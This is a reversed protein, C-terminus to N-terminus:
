VSKQGSYKPRVVWMLVIGHIAGVIGGAAAITLLMTVIIQFIAAGETVTGAVLFVLPMGFAWAISNAGFWWGARWTYKRLVMWQPLALIIGLVMGMVVALLMIQAENFDPSSSKEQSSLSIITSPLMGLIWASVAGMLSALVWSRSSLRNVIRRLVLWQALGIVAGEFAGLIIMLLAFFITSERSVSEGLKSTILLGMVGVTGLGLLEGLANAVIWQLWLKLRNKQNVKIM